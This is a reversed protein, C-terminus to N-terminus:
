FFFMLFSQIINDYDAQFVLFVTFSHFNFPLANLKLTSYFHLSVLHLSVLNKLIHLIKELLIKDFGILFVLFKIFSHFNFPHVCLKLLFTLFCSTLVCSTLYPCLIIKFVHWVKDYNQWFEQILLCSVFYLFVIFISSFFCIAQTFIYPCLTYPCM